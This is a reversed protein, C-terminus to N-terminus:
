KADLLVAITMGIVLKLLVTSAAIKFTTLYITFLRPDGLLQKYNDLGAPQAPNILNWNYTSLVFAAIVPGVIFVVFGILTPSLFLYATLIEARRLPNSMTKSIQSFAAM